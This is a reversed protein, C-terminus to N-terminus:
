ATVVLSPFAGVGSSKTGSPDVPSEQVLEPVM